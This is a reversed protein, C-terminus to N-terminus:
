NLKSRRARRPHYSALMLRSSLIQAGVAWIESAGRTSEAAFASFTSAVRVGFGDGGEVRLSIIDVQGWLVVIEQANNLKTYIILFSCV